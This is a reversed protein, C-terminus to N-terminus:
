KKDGENWNYKAKYKKKSMKNVYYCLYIESFNYSGLKFRQVIEDDSIIKTKGYINDGKQIQAKKLVTNIFNRDMSDRSPDLNIRNKDVNGYEVLSDFIYTKDIIEVQNKVLEEWESNNSIRSLYIMM